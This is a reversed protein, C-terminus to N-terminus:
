VGGRCRSVGLLRVHLESHGNIEGALVHQRKVIHNCRKLAIASGHGARRGDEGRALRSLYEIAVVVFDALPL